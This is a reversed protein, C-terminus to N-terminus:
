YMISYTKGDTASISGNKKDAFKKELEPNNQLNCWGTIIYKLDNKAPLGYHTHTFYAPWIYLDGCEVITTFDQQPFRTGGGDKIDNLYFMWALLRKNGRPDISFECHEGAYCEGPQYRQMNAYQFYGWEGYHLLFSHIKSYERLNEILVDRFSCQSVDLCIGDYFYEQEGNKSADFPGKWKIKNKDEFSDIYKKCQEKTLAKKKHYIWKM